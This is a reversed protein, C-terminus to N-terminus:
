KRAQLIREANRSYVKRLIKDNLGLGHLPWHYTFLDWDYFHEDETELIRFTTLYHRASFARKNSRTGERVLVKTDSRRTPDTRERNKSSRAGKAATASSV